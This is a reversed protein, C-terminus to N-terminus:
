YNYRIILLYFYFSIFIFLSYLWNLSLYFYISFIFINKFQIPHYKYGLLKTGICYIYLTSVMNVFKKMVHLHIKSLKYNSSRNRKQAIGSWQQCSLSNQLGSFSNKQLAIYQSGCLSCHKCLAQCYGINQMCPLSNNGVSDLLLCKNSCNDECNTSDLNLPGYNRSKCMSQHTDRSYYQPLYIRKTHSLHRM